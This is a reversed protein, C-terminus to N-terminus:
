TQNYLYQLSITPIYSSYQTYLLEEEPHVLSARRREGRADIPRPGHAQGGIVPQREKSLTKSSRQGSRGDVVIPGKDFDSLDKREGM